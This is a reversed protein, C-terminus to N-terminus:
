LHVEMYNKYGQERENESMNRTKMIVYKALFLANDKLLYDNNEDIFSEIFEKENEWVNRSVQYYFLPYFRWWKNKEQEKYYKMLMYIRYFASRGVYGKKILRVM